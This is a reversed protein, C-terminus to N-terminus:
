NVRYYIMVTITWKGSFYMAIVNVSIPDRSETRDRSEIQIIYRLSKYDKSIYPREAIVFRHYKDALTELSVSLPDAFKLTELKLSEFPSM